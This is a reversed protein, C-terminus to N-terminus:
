TEHSAKKRIEWRACAPSGAKVDTAGGGTWVAEMLSCKLYTGAMRKRYLHQCTKCTEGQPGTGPTAAYGTKKKAPKHFLQRREAPTLARDLKLMDDGM